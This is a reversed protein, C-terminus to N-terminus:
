SARRRRARRRLARYRARKRVDPKAPTFTAIIALTRDGQGGDGLALDRASRLYALM